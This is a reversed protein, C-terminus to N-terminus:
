SAKIHNPLLTFIKETTSCLLAFCGKPIDHLAMAKAIGSLLSLCVTMRQPRIDEKFQQLGLSELYVQLKDEPVHKMWVGLMHNLHTHTQSSLSHVLPSYIWEGLFLSASQSSQAQCVALSICQHQVDEGFNLRMLPSLIASWNVPPYQFSIGVSALPALATKVEEPLAIEPGKKGAETIFEVIYRIVSKEPLYAFDQPVSTYSHNLSMHAFHLHGLMFASNSQLGIATSLLVIQTLSHIVESLRRQVQTSLQSECNVKILNSESGVLAVLGSSAAMRQMIPSGEAFLIKIWAAVLRSHIDEAKCHGCNSLGHVMLGLALSFGQTQQSEEKLTFLTNM